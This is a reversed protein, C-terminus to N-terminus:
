RRGRRRAGSKAALTACIAGKPLKGGVRAPRPPALGGGGYPARDVGGRRTRRRRRHRVLGAPSLRRDAGGLRDNRRRRLRRPCRLMFARRDRGMRRRRRQFHRARDAGARCASRCRRSARPSRMRTAPFRARKACCRSRSPRWGAAKRLFTSLSQGPRRRLRKALAEQGLDPKLDLHSDDVGAGRDRRALRGFPRLRRRGRGAGGIM